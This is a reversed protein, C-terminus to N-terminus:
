WDPKNALDIEVKEYDAGVEQLAIAARQAYPCIISTYFTLKALLL